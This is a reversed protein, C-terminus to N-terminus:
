AVVRRRPRALVRPAGVIDSGDPSWHSFCARNACTGQRLGVTIRDTAVVGAKGFEAAFHQRASAPVTWVSRSRCGWLAAPRAPLDTVARGDLIGLAASIHPRRPQDARPAHAVRGPAAACRQLAVHVHLDPGLGGAPRM